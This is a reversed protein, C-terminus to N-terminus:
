ETLADFIQVLVPMPTEKKSCDDLTTILIPGFIKKGEISHKILKITKKDFLQLDKLVNIVQKKKYSNDLQKGTITPEKKDDKKGDGKVKGAPTKIFERADRKLQDMAIKEGNFFVTIRGKGPRESMGKKLTVEGMKLIIGHDTSNPTTELRVAKDVTLLVQYDNVGATPQVMNIPPNKVAKEATKAPDEKTNKMKTEAAEAKAAKKAAKAAKKEEKTTM